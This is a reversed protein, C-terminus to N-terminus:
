IMMRYNILKYLYIIAILLGVYCIACLIFFLNYSSQGFVIFVFSITLLMLWIYVYLKNIGIKIFAFYSHIALGIITIIKVFYSSLCMSLYTSYLQEKTQGILNINLKKNLVWTNFLNLDKAKIITEISNFIIIGVCLSVIIYFILKPMETTQKM